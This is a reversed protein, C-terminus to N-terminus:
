PTATRAPEPSTWPVPAAGGFGEPALLEPPVTASQSWHITLTAKSSDPFNQIEITGPFWKKGISVHNSDMRLKVLNNLTKAYFQVKLPITRGKDFTYARYVYASEVQPHGGALVVDTSEDAIQWLKFDDAVFRSLDEYSIGFDAIPAGIAETKITGGSRVMVTREAGRVLAELAPEKLQLYWRADKGPAFFAIARTTRPGKYTELAIAIDARMTTQPTNMDQAGLLLLRLSAGDLARASTACVLVGLAIGVM